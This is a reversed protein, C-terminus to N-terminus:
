FPENGHEGRKPFLRFDSAQSEGEGEPGASVSAEREAEAVERPPADLVVSAEADPSGRALDERGWRAAEGARDEPVPSSM